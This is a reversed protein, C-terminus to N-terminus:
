SWPMRDWWKMAFLKSFLPFLSLSLKRHEMMVAFPSQLWSILLHKSRTLFVIVLRNLLCCILFCLCSKASLPRDLRLLPKELLRTHIHSNSWLSLQAGFFQHNQVTINSFVRSLGKSQLSILSTLGLPFWDQINVPCVSLSTTVGFSQGDSAFLQSNYFVGISPFVSPFLLPHCLVLHNSPMVSRIFMLKLLSWAITFRLSAQCATTLPTVFHPVHRLSQVVIHLWPLSSMVSYTSYIDSSLISIQLFLNREPVFIRHLSFIRFSHPCHQHLWTLGLSMFITRSSM